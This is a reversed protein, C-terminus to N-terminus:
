TAQLVPYRRYLRLAAVILVLSFFALTVAAGAIRVSGSSDTFAFAPVRDIDASRFEQEALLRQAFFDRYVSHFAQLQDRFEAYRQDDTGAIATLAQHTVIAPSLHKMFEVVRSRERARREFSALLPAMSEAIDTESALVERFFAAPAEGEAALEPHDFYYAERAAAARKEAESAAERLETTLNVRSPAPYAATAIVNVLAPLVVVAVLWANALVVGNTESRWNLANVFLGAAFWFLAYLLVILLWGSADELAGPAGFDVGTVLLSLLSVVLTVTLVMLCRAACKALTYGPLSVGQAMTLALLGNEKERSLLDFVLAIIFVPLVFVIVFAVDFSGALLNKPNVIDSENMFSYTAHATVSYHNPLADSQGLALAHLPRPPLDAPETLISFGLAGASAVAPVEAANSQEYSQLQAKITQQLQAAAADLEAVQQIQSDSRTGGNFAAIITLAALTLLSGWWVPNQRFLRLEHDFVHRFM